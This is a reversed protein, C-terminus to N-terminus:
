ATWLEYIHGESEIYVCDVDLSYDIIRNMTNLAQGYTTCIAKSDGFTKNHAYVIFM